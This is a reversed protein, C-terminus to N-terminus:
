NSLAQVVGLQMPRFHCDYEACVEAIARLPDIVNAETTGAVSSLPSLSLRTRTQAARNLRFDDTCIRNDNDTKLQIFVLM